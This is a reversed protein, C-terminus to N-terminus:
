TTLHWLYDNIGRSDNVHSVALPLRPIAIVHLGFVAALAKALRHPQVALGVHDGAPHLATRLKGDALIARNVDAPKAEVLLAAPGHVRAAGVAALAKLRLAAQLVWLVAQVIGRHRRIRISTHEHCPGAM